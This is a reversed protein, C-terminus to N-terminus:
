FDINCIWRTAFLRLHKCFAWLCKYVTTLSIAWKSEGVSSVVHGHKWYINVWEHVAKALCEGSLSNDADTRWMGPSVFCSVLLYICCMWFYWCDFMLQVTNTTEMWIKRICLFQFTWKQKVTHSLVFYFVAICLLCVHQAIKSQGSTVGVLLRPTAWRERQGSTVEGIRENSALLRPFFGRHRTHKRVISVCQKRRVYWTNITMHRSIWMFGPLETSGGDTM